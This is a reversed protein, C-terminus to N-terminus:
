QTLCLYLCHCLRMFILLLYLIARMLFHAITRLHSFYQLPHLLQVGVGCTAKPSRHPINLLFVKNLTLLSSHPLSSHPTLRLSYSTPLLSCPVLFSHIFQFIFLLIFYYIILIPKSPYSEIKAESPMTLYVSM